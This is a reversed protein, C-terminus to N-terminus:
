GKKAPQAEEVKRETEPKARRAELLELEALAEPDGPSLELAAHLGRLAEERNGAHAQSRAALILARLRAARPALLTQPPRLRAAPPVSPTTRRFGAAERDEGLAPATSLVARVFRRAKDEQGRAFAVGTHWPPRASTWAVTGVVDLPFGVGGYNLKLAVPEGPRLALRAVIRCGGAGLDETLGTWRGAGFAVEAPCRAAFRPVRRTEVSVAVM